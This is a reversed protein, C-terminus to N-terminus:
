GAGSAAPRSAAPRVAGARWTLDFLLGAPVTAPVPATPVGAADLLDAVWHNCDNFIHFAGVARYFLSPGYLGRGLDERWAEPAFTVELRALLHELGSESLELRVMDAHPFFARPHDALGVVHLVSPNGPAFL